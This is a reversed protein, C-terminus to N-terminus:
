RRACRGAACAPTTAGHGGRGARHGARLAQPDGTADLRCTAERYRISDAELQTGDRDVFRRVACSSRRATARGRDAHRRRVPTVRFGKLRLLSDIVAIRRRFRAPRGRRCVRAQAGDGHRRQGPRRTPPFGHAGRRTRAGGAAGPPSAVRPAHRSQRHRAIRVRARLLVFRSVRGGAARSAPEVVWACGISVEYLLWCRCRDDRDHLGCRAAVAARRAVAAIM